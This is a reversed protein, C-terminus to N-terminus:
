REVRTRHSIEDYIPRPNDLDTSLLEAARNLTGNRLVAEVMRPDFQSGACRHLEASVAPISLAKRYPRDSLMADVSDCLMIIRAAIPIDEGVIGDPYGNGDYREHHHLVAKVVQPNVSRLSQLMSAGKAAHTQILAREGDSLDFPKQLVDAFSPDIKGVDHLLAATEITRVTASSLGLDRAILQALTAVRVSHGSTYPDRTEIAKVLARILDTHADLVQQKSLHFYHFLLLPLVIVLISAEYSDYLLVPFIAIPSALFDYRLGSAIHAIVSGFSAQKLYSIAAGALLINTAFFVTAAAFFALLLGSTSLMANYVVGALGATIGAQAMNYVARLLSNRRVLLQSIGVVGAVTLLAVAPEYIAVTGLFPLFAMSARPQQTGGGFRFDVAMMEAVLAVFVFAALGVWDRSTLGSDVGATALWMYLAGVIPVFIAVPLIFSRSM